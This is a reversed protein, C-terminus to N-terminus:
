SLWAQSCTTLLMLYTSQSPGDQYQVLAVSAKGEQLLIVPALWLLAAGAMRSPEVVASTKGKTIFSDKPFMLWGEVLSTRERM